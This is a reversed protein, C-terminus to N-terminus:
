YRIYEYANWDQVLRMHVHQSLRLRAQHLSFSDSRDGRGGLDSKFSKPHRSDGFRIVVSASFLVLFLSSLPIRVWAGSSVLDKTQRRLGSPWRAKVLEVGIFRRTSVPNTACGNEALLTRAACCMIACILMPVVARM